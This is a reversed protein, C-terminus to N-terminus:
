VCFGFTAVRHTVNELRKHFGERCVERKSSNYFEM